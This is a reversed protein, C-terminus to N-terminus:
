LLAFHLFFKLNKPHTVGEKIKLGLDGVGCECLQANFLARHPQDRRLLLFGKDRSNVRM